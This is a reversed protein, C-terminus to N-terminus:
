FGSNMLIITALKVTKSNLFSYQGRKKQKGLVNSINVQIDFSSAILNTWYSEDLSYFFLSIPLLQSRLLNPIKIIKIMHPCCVDRLSMLLFYSYCESFIICGLIYYISLFFAFMPNFLTINCWEFLYHSIEGFFISLIFLMSIHSEQLKLRIWRLLSPPEAKQTKVKNEM